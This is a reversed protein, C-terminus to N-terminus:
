VNYRFKGMKSNHRRGKAFLRTSNAEDLSHEENYQEQEVMNYQKYSCPKVCKTQNTIKLLGYVSFKHYAISYELLDDITSCENFKQSNDWPLKCGIELAM